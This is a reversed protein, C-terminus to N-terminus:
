EKLQYLAFEIYLSAAITLCGEHIDFESTHHAAQSGPVAPSGSGVFAYVGPIKAIIEAMDDGGLSLAKPRLNETGVVQQIVPVTEAYVVPDNILACTFSEIEVQTTAGFTAATNAAVEAIKRSVLARTEPSFCRVTGEIVADQAIINYGEGSRLVGVGILVPDTPAVLRTTIEQLAVVIQSAAYLADVGLEPTSIHTRKGQVRITFHDVSANEPGSSMSVQGVPLDSQVHIGFSREAGALLGSELFIVAGKGYEEGPQFVFDVEGCLNDELQKLTRAAGILATTHADHGCAHMVGPTCSAYPVTKSDQIPLADTDARLVIKKGDSGKGRLIGLVGTEGVRQTPIGLAALEEEIRQATHYEQMSLEPHQHFHRRLSVLYERDRAVLPHIAM